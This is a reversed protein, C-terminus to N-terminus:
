TLFPVLCFLLLRAERSRLYASAADEGGWGREAVEGGRVIDLPSGARSGISQKPPLALSLCRVRDKPVNETQRLLAGVVTSLAVKPPSM